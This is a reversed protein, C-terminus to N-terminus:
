RVDVTAGISVCNLNAQPSKYVDAGVILESPLVAFSFERGNNDTALTRGNVTVANFKPGFGRVTVYRGEGRNREITVGAIRQLSEAVNQDPLKGLDTAVISDVVSISDRKIDISARQSARIGTVVIAEDAAATEAPTATDAAAAPQQAGNAAALEQSFAPSALGAGAFATAALLMGRRAHVNM